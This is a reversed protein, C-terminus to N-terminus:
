VTVVKGALLAGAIEYMNSIRGAALREELGYFKLCTGCALVEIGAAELRRLSEVTEAGEVALRVGGNMLILRGPAPETEGLTSLFARMLLAGLQDDGSGIRDSRIFVTAAQKAASSAEVESEPCSSAVAAAVKDAVGGAGGAKVGILISITGGEENTSLIENGSYSAFRSVNEKAAPNDVLVEIRDYGGEELDKNVSLVPKPCAMGRADIRKLSENM